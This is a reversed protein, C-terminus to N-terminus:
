QKEQRKLEQARKLTQHLQRLLKLSKQHLLNRKKPAETAATKIAPAMQTDENNYEDWNLM